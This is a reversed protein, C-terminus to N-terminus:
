LVLDYEQTEIEVVKAGVKKVLAEGNPALVDNVIILNM